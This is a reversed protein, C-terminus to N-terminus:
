TPPTNPKALFSQASENQNALVTNFSAPTIRIQNEWTGQVSSLAYASLSFIIFFICCYRKMLKWAPSKLIVISQSISHVRVPRWIRTFNIYTETKDLIYIYATATHVLFQRLENFNRIPLKKLTYKYLESNSNRKTM